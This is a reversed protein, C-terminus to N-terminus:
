HGVQLVDGPNPCLFRAPVDKVYALADQPDFSGFSGPPLDFTGYHYAILTHAGRTNILAGAMGLWTVRTGDQQTLFATEIPQTRLQTSM